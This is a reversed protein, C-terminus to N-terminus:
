DATFIDEQLIIKLLEIMEVINQFPQFNSEPM